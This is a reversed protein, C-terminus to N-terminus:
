GCDYDDVCVDHYTIELFVFILATKLCELVYRTFDTNPISDWHRLVFEVMLCRDRELCIMLCDKGLEWCIMGGCCWVGYRTYFIESM